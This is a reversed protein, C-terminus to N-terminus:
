IKAIKDIIGINIKKYKNNDNLNLNNKILLENLSQINLKIGRSYFDTEIINYKDDINEIFTNADDESLNIIFDIFENLKEPKLSGTYHNIIFDKINKVPTSKNEKCFNIIGIYIKLKLNLNIIRTKSFKELFDIKNKNIWIYIILNVLSQILNPDNESVNIANEYKNKLQNLHYTKEPLLEFNILNLIMDFDSIKNIKNTFIVLFNRIDKEFIKEFKM